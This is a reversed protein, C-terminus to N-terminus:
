EPVASFGVLPALFFLSEGFIRQWGFWVRISLTKKQM